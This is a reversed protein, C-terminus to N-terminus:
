CIVKIDAIILVRAKDGHRLIRIFAADLVCVCVCVCVM